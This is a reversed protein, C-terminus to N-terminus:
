SWSPKWRAQWTNRRLMAAADIYERRCPIRRSRSPFDGLPVEDDARLREADPQCQAGEARGLAVGARGHRRVLVDADMRQLAPVVRRLHDEDVGRAPGQVRDVRHVDAVEIVQRRQHGLLVLLRNVRLRRAHEGRDSDLLALGESRVLPFPIRLSAAVTALKM